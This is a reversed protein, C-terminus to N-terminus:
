PFCYGLVEAISTMFSCSKTETDDHSGYEITIDIDMRSIRQVESWLVDFQGIKM